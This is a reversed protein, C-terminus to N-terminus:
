LTPPFAAKGLRNLVEEDEGILEHTFVQPILSCSRM